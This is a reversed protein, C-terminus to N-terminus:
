AAGDRGTGVTCRRVAPRRKPDPHLTLIHAPGTHGEEGMLPGAEGRGWGQGSVGLSMLGAEGPAAHHSETLMRRAGGDHVEKVQRGRNWNKRINFVNTSKRGRDVNVRGGVGVRLTRIEAAPVRRVTFDGCKRPPPPDGPGAGQLPPHRIRGCHGQPPAQSPPWPRLVWSCLVKQLFDGVFGLGDLRRCAPLPRLDTSVGPPPLTLLILLLSFSFGSPQCGLSSAEEGAKGCM